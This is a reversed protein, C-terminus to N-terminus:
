KNTILNQYAMVGERIFSADLHGKGSIQETVRAPLTLLDPDFSFGERFKFQYKEKLIEEGLRHLRNEDMEIGCIALCERVTEETYLDRSFFCIV